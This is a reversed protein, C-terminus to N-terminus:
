VVLGYIKGHFRDFLAEVAEPSGKRLEGLLVNDNLLREAPMRLLKTYCVNYSTIRVVFRFPIGRLMAALAPLSLM